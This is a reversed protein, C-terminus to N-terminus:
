LIHRLSVVPKLWHLFQSKGGYASSMQGYPKYVVKDKSKFHFGNSSDFQFNRFILKKYSSHFSIRLSNLVNSLNHHLLNKLFM